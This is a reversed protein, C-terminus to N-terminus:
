SRETDKSKPERNMRMSEVFNEDHRRQADAIIHDLTDGGVTVEFSEMEDEKYFVAAKYREFGREREDADLDQQHEFASFESYSISKDWPGWPTDGEDDMGMKYQSLDIYSNLEAMEREEDFGDPLLDMTPLEGLFEPSVTEYQEPTMAVAHSLSAIDAAAMRRFDLNDRSVTHVITDGDHLTFGETNVHVYRSPNDRSLFYAEQEADDLSIVTSDRGRLHYVVQERVRAGDTGSLTWAMDLKSRMAAKADDPHYMVLYKGESDKTAAYKLGNRHAFHDFVALDAETFGSLVSVKGGPEIDQALVSPDVRGVTVAGERLLEVAHLAKDRDKQLFQFLQGNDGPIPWCAFMVGERILYDKLKEADQNAVTMHCSKGRTKECGESFFERDVEGSREKNYYSRVARDVAGHVAKGALHGVAKSGASAGETLASLVEAMMRMHRAYADEAINDTMSVPM